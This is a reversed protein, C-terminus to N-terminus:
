CTEGTKTFIKPKVILREIQHDLAGTDQVKRRAPDRPDHPSTRDWGSFPRRPLRWRNEAISDALVREYSYGTVMALVCTVCDDM